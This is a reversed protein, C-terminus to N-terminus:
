VVEAVPTPHTVRAEQVVQAMSRGLVVAVEEKTIQGSCGLAVRAVLPPLRAECLQLYQALVELGQRLARWRVLRVEQQV